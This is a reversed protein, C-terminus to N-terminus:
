ERVGLYRYTEGVKGTKQIELLDNYVKEIDDAKVDRGGLGYIYNVIKVTEARGFLASKIETGLPGGVGSFGEAKDMVALAKVNKLVQAIEEEPFPRFM